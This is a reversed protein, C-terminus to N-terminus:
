NDGQSASIGAQLEQHCQAESCSGLVASCGPGQSAARRGIPGWRGQSSCSNPARGKRTLWRPKIPIELVYHKKIILLDLLLLLQLAYILPLSLSSYLTRNILVLDSLFINNQPNSNTDTEKEVWGQLYPPEETDQQSYGPVGTRLPGSPPVVSGYSRVVRITFLYM